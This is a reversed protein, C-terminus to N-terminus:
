VLLFQEGRAKASSGRGFLCASEWRPVASSLEVKSSHQQCEYRLIWVEVEVGSAYLQQGM